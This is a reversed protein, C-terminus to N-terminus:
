QGSQRADLIELDRNRKGGEENQTKIRKSEKFTNGGDASELISTAVFRSTIPAKAGGTGGGGIKGEGNVDVGKAQLSALAHGWGGAM